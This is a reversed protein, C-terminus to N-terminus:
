SDAGDKYHYHEQSATTFSGVFAPDDGRHVARGTVLKEGLAWDFCGQDLPYATLVGTLHRARIWEEARERSTFVGGAFRGCEGNFVWVWAGSAM